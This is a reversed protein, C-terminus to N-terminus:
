TILKASSLEFELTLSEIEKKSYTPCLNQLYLKVKKEAEGRNQAQIVVMNYVEPVHRLIYLMNEGFRQTVAPICQM